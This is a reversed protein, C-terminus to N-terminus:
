GTRQTCRSKWLKQSVPSVVTKSHQQQYYKSVSFDDKGSLLTWNDSRSNDVEMEMLINQLSQFENHAQESLPLFFISALNPAERVDKISSNVDLVFSALRPFM